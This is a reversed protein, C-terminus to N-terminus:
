PKVFVHVLDMETRTPAGTLKGEVARHLEAFIGTDVVADAEARSGFVGIGRVTGTARDGTVLILRETRNAMGVRDAIAVYEALVDDYAEPKAKMTYEVVTSM